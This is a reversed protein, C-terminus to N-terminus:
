GLKIQAQCHCLETGTQEQTKDPITFINFHLPRFTAGYKEMGCWIINHQVMNGCEARSPRVPQITQSSWGGVWGIHPQLELIHPHLEVWGGMM